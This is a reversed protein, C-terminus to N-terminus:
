AIEEDVIFKEDTFIAPLDLLILGGLVIGSMYQNALGGGVQPRPKISQMPVDTVEDLGSVLFAVEMDKYQAVVVYDPPTSTVIGLFQALNVVSRIYGRINTIGAVFPPVCPVPTISIGRTVNYVSAAPFAYTEEGLRFSIVRLSDRKSAAGTRSVPQALQRARAELIRQRQEESLEGLGIARQISKEQLLQDFLEPHNSM